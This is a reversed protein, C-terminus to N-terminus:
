QLAEEIFGVVQSETLGGLWNRAIRGERDIFVTTPISAVAYDTTIQLDRDPGNPYTIGFEEIFARADQENDQINVGVFIVGRDRYAESVTAFIPAEARCPPCWSAWFNLVVVQGRLEALRLTDGEFLSLEFDPAPMGAGHQLGAVLGTSDAGDDLVPLHGYRIMLVSVLMVTFSAVLLARLLPISRALLLVSSATRM